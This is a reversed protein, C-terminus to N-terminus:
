PISTTIVGSSSRNSSSPQSFRSCALVVSSNRRDHDARLETWFGLAIQVFSEIVDGSVIRVSGLTDASLNEVGGIKQRLMTFESSADAISRRAVRLDAPEHNWCEAIVQNKGAM